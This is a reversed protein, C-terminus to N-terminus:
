KPGRGARGLAGRHCAIVRMVSPWVRIKLLRVPRAASYGIRTSPRVPIVTLGVSNGQKRQPSPHLVPGHLGSARALSDPGAKKAISRSKGQKRQPSPHLM